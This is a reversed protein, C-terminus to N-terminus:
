ARSRRLTEDLVADAISDIITGIQPQIAEAGATIDADNNTTIEDDTGTQRLDFRTVEGEGELRREEEDPDAVDTLLELQKRSSVIGDLKGVNAWEEITNRPLSFTINVQVDKITTKSSKSTIANILAIRDRVGSRLHAIMSKSKDVMPKFKLQLAIGSTTGTAGVIENIDPVALAMFINDRVRKLRSEIRKTDTSKTVYRVDGGVPVGIVRWQKITEANDQVDKISFGMLALLGDAEEKVNDGSASDVENYEDQLGIVDETIHTTMTENVKYIVAPVVGYNHPTDPFGKPTFWNGNQVDKQKHFTRFGKETIVVMIHLTEDQIEDGVFGGKPVESMNILGILVADSNYVRHWMIPVRPDIVIRDDFEHTEIGWGYLYADRRVTVDVTDFDNDTGIERYAAPGENEVVEDGDPTDTELATINYTDSMAGVYLDIAYKIFNSVVKSKPSGDTYFQTDGTIKQIGDYYDRLRQMAVREEAGSNWIEEYEGATLDHM